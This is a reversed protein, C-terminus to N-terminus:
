TWEERAELPVLKLPALQALFGCRATEAEARATAAHCGWCSPAIPDGPLPEFVRGCGPCRAEGAM